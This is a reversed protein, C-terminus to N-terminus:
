HKGPAEPKGPDRDGPNEPTVDPVFEMALECLQSKLKGAACAAEPIGERMARPWESPEDAIVLTQDVVRFVHV